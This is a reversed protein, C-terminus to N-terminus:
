EGSPFGVRETTLYLPRAKVEDHIRAVYEGVIGLGILIAAGQVSLLLIVTTFGEVAGGFLWRAFTQVGVVLSLGAFILGMLTVAHLPASTFAAIANVAMRALKSPSWRSRGAGRPVVEFDIRKREFGIWTSTGRFFSREGLQLLGEVAKRSLLRYDTSNIVDVRTLFYFIRNFTKSALRGIPAQDARNKKVAEVVDAGTRWAAILDGILRPPHQLDADMVIVAEAESAELGARIAAEKGFNRSLKIGRIWTHHAALRNITGWSDDISGDDILILEGECDDTAGFADAVEAALRELSESENHVPCLVSVKNRSAGKSEAEM